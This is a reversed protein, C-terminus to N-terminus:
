IGILGLCIFIGWKTLDFLWHLFKDYLLPTPCISVFASLPPLPPLGFASLQQRPTSPTLGFLSWQQRLPPPTTWSGWIKASTIHSGGMILISMIQCVTEFKRQHTSTANCQNYNHHSHRPPILRLPKGATVPTLSKGDVANSQWRGRSKGAPSSRQPDDAGYLMKDTRQCCKDWVIHLQCHYLCPCHPLANVCRVFLSIREEVLENWENHQGVCIVEWLCYIVAFDNWPSIM